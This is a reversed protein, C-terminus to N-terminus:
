CPEFRDFKYLQENKFELIYHEDLYEKPYILIQNKDYNDIQPSLGLKLLVTDFSM